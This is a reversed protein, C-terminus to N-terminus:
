KAHAARTRAQDFFAPVGLQELVHHLPRVLQEKTDPGRHSVFRLPPSDRANVHAGAGVSRHACVRARVCHTASLPAIFM